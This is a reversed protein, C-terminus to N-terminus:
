RRRALLLQETRRPFLRRCRGARSPHHSTANPAGKPHEVLTASGTPFLFGADGAIFRSSSCEMSDKRLRRRDFHAEQQSVQSPPRQGSNKASALEFRDRRRTGDGDAEVDRRAVNFERQSRIRSRKTM